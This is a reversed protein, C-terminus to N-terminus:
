CSRSSPAWTSTAGTSRSGPAAPRPAWLPSWPTSWPCSHTSPLHDPRPGAGLPTHRAPHASHHAAAERVVYSFRERSRGEKSANVTVMDSFAGAAPGTVCVIRPPAAGTLPPWRPRPATRM